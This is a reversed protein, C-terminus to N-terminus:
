SNEENYVEEINERLNEVIAVINKEAGNIKLKETQINCSGATTKSGGIRNTLKAGIYLLIAAKEANNVYGSIKGEFELPYDRLFVGYETQFLSKNKVVGTKRNVETGMRVETLLTRKSQSDFNAKANISMFASDFFLKGEKSETGFLESFDTKLMKLSSNVVKEINNRFLGKVVSGPVLLYGNSDKLVTSDILGASKGSGMHFPSEFIIKYDFEIKEKV